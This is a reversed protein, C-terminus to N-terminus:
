GQSCPKRRFDEERVGLVCGVRRELHVFAHSLRKEAWFRGQGEGLAEEIAASLDVGAGISKSKRRQKRGDTSLSPGTDMDLGGERGKGM